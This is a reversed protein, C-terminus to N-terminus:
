FIRPLVKRLFDKDVISNANEISELKQEERGVLWNICYSILYSILALLAATLFAPVCASLDIALFLGAFILCKVALILLLIEIPKM